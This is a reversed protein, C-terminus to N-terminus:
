FTILFGASVAGFTLWKFVPQDFDDKLTLGMIPVAGDVTLSIPGAIRLRLSAHPALVVVTTIPRADYLQALAGVGAEFGIALTLRLWEFAFRYGVRVQAGAENVAERQGTVPQDFTMEGVLGIVLDGKARVSGLRPRGFLNFTGLTTSLPEFGLRGQYKFGGPHAADVLVRGTIGGSLTLGVPATDDPEIVAQAQVAPRSGGKAAAIVVSPTLLTLENWTVSRRLGETLMVRGGYSQNSKFLRVAYQGPTLAVERANGSAVEVIVQDRAVDSVLSRESGEPLVLVASPKVLSSLVLEGQGSLKFDYSPHQAGVPLVSTATVTRDYAYRYAEALTILKDGSSDAAGRLGSILHHTFYSGMVESSELAAEDAASSTIFAEGSATLMDNIKITFPTAPRGGKERLGNGSRCADVIALRVDAGTGLLLAKLRSYTLKERGLEIAEGDSHGSFFFVLVTRVDPSKHFSAVRETADALARELDGVKRGQLLMVDDPSVDGLEALVRAMKGADNEAYRLPPMDGSGANNGVVVAIRKTEAFACAPMVVLALMLVLALHRWATRPM